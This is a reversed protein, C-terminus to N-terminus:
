PAPARGQNAPTLGDVDGSGPSVATREALPSAPKSAEKPKSEDASVMRNLRDLLSFLSDISFGALFAMGFPISSVSVASTSTTVTPVWFWGIIIGALGGLAIRLVLSLLDVIRADGRGGGSGNVSLLKRMVFVCAGLLGYLSPMLWSNLLFLKNRVLYIADDLPANYDSINLSRVFCAISSEYAELDIKAELTSPKVKSTEAWQACKSDLLPAQPLPGAPVVGDSRTTCDLPPATPANLANALSRMLCPGYFQFVVPVFRMSSSDLLMGRVATLKANLRKADAVLKQYGDLQALTPAQVNLVREYRYMKWAFYIKEPLREGVLEQHERLALDAQHLESSQFSLYLTLLLTLFGLMYPMVLAARYGVRGVLTERHKLQTVTVGAEASLQNMAEILTAVKPHEGRALAESAKDIEDFIASNQPLSGERYAHQALLRADELVGKVSLPLRADPRVNEVSLRNM